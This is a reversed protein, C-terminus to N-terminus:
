FTKPISSSMLKNNKLTHQSISVIQWKFNLKTLMRNPIIKMPKFKHFKRKEMTEKLIRSPHESLNITM